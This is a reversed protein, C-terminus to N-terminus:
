GYQSTHFPQIENASCAPSHSSHLCKSLRLFLMLFRQCHSCKLWIRSSNQTFVSVRLAWLWKVFVGKGPRRRLYSMVPSHRRCRLLLHMSLAELCSQRGTLPWVAGSLDTGKARDHAIEFGTVFCMRQPAAKWNQTTERNLPKLVLLRWHCICDKPHTQVLVTFCNMKFVHFCITKSEIANKKKLTTSLISCFSHLNTYKKWGARALSSMYSDSSFCLGWLFQENWQQGAQRHLCVTFYWVCAFSTRAALKFGNESSPGQFRIKQFIEVFSAQKRVPVFHKWVVQM